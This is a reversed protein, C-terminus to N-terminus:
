TTRREATDQNATRTNAGILQRHTPTWRETTTQPRPPECPKGLALQGTLLPRLANRQEHTLPPAAAVLAAIHAARAAARDEDRQARTPRPTLTM